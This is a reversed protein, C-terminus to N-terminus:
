TRWLLIGFPRLMGDLSQVAPRLAPGYVPDGMMEDIASRVLPLSALTAVMAAMLYGRVVFLASESLPMGM